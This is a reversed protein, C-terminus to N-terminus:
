RGVDAFTLALLKVSAVGDPKITPRVVRDTEGAIENTFAM